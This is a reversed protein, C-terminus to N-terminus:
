KSHAQGLAAGAHIEDTGRRVVRDGAKLDGSVEVLDGDAAGKKVDVWEAKGDRDRVVFTRETTTVVSTKPVYLGAHTSRLPWSVSPYMGPALAGDGNRMDLEVPMTRTKSDLTHAIRALPAAFKRGPYAPVTFSVTVGSTMGALDEEPVPVVIRLRSVQQIEVLADGGPGVLAGPHAWRETVVGDFPATLKLYGQMVRISDVAAQAAHIAQDRSHVLAQAADVQKQAQVVENGAVAGATEAAKRLRDYTAEAAALQAEAEMRTATMAQVKSEAEAIQAALEPASLEAIPDGAKVATGRDVPITEVFGQVKAHIAVRLYPQIEGPLEVTRSVSKAVVAVLEGSQGNALTALLLSALLLCPASRMVNEIRM